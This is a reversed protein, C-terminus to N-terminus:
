DNLITFTVLFLSVLVVAIGYVTSKDV